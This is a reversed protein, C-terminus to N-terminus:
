LFSSIFCSFIRPSLSREVWLPSAFSSSQACRGDRCLEVLAAHKQGAVHDNGCEVILVLVQILLGTKMSTQNIISGLFQAAKMDKKKCFWFRWASAIALNIVNINQRKSAMAKRHIWNFRMAVQSLMFSNFNVLCKAAVVYEQFFHSIATTPFNTQVCVLLYELCQKEHQAILTYHVYGNYAASENYSATCDIALVFCTSISALLVRSFFRVQSRCWNSAKLPKRNNEENEFHKSRAAVCRIVLYFVYKLPPFVDGCFSRGQLVMYM